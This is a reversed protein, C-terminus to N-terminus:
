YRQIGLVELANDSTTYDVFLGGLPPLQWNNEEAETLKVASEDNRSTHDNSFGCKVFCNKIATSAILRWAEVIFHAACLVVLLM